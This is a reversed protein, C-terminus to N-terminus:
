KSGHVNFVPVKHGNEITDHALSASLDYFLDGFTVMKLTRRDLNM